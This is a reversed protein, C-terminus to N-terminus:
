THLHPVGLPVFRAVVQGCLCHWHCSKSPVHVSYFAAVVQARAFYCAPRFTGDHAWLAHAEWGMGQLHPACAGQAPQLPRERRCPCGARVKDRMVRCSMTGTVVHACYGNACWTSPKHTSERMHWPECAKWPTTRACDSPTNQLWEAHSELIEIYGTLATGLTPDCCLVSWVLPSPGSPPASLRRSSHHLPTCAENCRSAQRPAATLM